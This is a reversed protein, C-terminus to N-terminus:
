YLLYFFDFFNFTGLKLFSPVSKPVNKPCRSLIYIDINIIIIIIIHGMNGYFINIERTIFFCM